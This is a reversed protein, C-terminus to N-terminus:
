RRSAACPPRSEHVHGCGGPRRAADPLAAAGRALGARDVTTRYAVLDVVAAGRSELARALVERQHDPRVILVSRGEVPAHAQLADGIHEERLEPIVVDAKIGHAALQDATSPGVACIAAAGLARLDRPGRTLASLFRAVSVASEFVIWDFADVSAAARDLAEPDEAPAMRFTPAVIAEAGLNELADGLERAREPSRTVIIRRGFLPREDFWRVHERLRTVDGVVLLAPEATNPSGADTLALLEGITGTVTRQSPLTGRYILAAADDASRGHDILARLVRLALGPAAFCVLTGELTALARWDFGPALDIEGEHGRLLVLTDGSEPHTLPVGAYAAVGVAVPVGPVVEYPIGQEHLFMAEKAGSDFVFPDGWKLRAVTHGDRAKEALLMSIADQAVAREAAAGVEIREAEARAWRLSPEAARDYVVVDSQALLRVGRATMLGPDGPGAGIIFVRGAPRTMAAGDPRLLRGQHAGHDERRAIQVTIRRWAGDRKPNKSVYGLTYQNALEDAIQSYIGPLQTADVVSYSRGGTEQALSKLVFQAENWGRSQAADKDRLGISYVTVESRKSLDLVDEYPVISSTDEGDSLLVIAQRRIDATGQVRLRKLEDISTYIANYLSTSGGAQTRRLARELQPKDDTFAQLIRAQSDFDIIQAVDKEGMRRIFGSAAEQAISLKTEMSTSTDIVLSLAIPQPLASFNDIEQLM